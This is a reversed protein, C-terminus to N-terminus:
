PHFFDICNFSLHFLSLTAKSKNWFKMSFTSAFHWHYNEKTPNCFHSRWVKRHQGTEWWPRATGKRNLHFPLINVYKSILLSPSVGWEWTALPGSEGPCGASPEASATHFWGSSPPYSLRSFPPPHGPSGRVERHPWGWEQNLAQETGVTQPSGQSIRGRVCACYKNIQRNWSCQTKVTTSPNERNSKMDKSYM